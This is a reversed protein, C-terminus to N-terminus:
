ERAFGNTKEGTPAKRGVTMDIGGIGVLALLGYVYSVVLGIYIIVRLWVPWNWRAMYHESAAVGFVAAFVGFVFLTSDAIQRVTDGGAFHVVIAAIPVVAWQRPLSWNTLGITSVSKARQSRVFCWLTGLSYQVIMSAALIGPLFWVLRRLNQTWQSITEDAIDVSLGLAAGSKLTNEVIVPAAREIAGAMELWTNGHWAATGVVLAAIGLQFASAPRGGKHLVWGVLGAPVAILLLLVAVSAAQSIGAIALVAAVAVLASVGTRLGGGSEVAGAAYRYAVVTLVYGVGALAMSVIPLVARDAATRVAALALFAAVAKWDDRVSDRVAV